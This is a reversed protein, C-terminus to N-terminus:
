GFFLARSEPAKGVMIIQPLSINYNQAVVAFMIRVPEISKYDGSQFFM